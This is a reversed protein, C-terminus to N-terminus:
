IMNSKIWPMYAAVRTYVGPFGTRACEYGFSVVGLLYYYYYSSGSMQPLMLPGGSDGQCADVNSNGACILQESFKVFSFVTRYSHECVKRDIIPVQVDRLVNSTPSQHKMAGWGAVFPNMGVFEQTLFQPGEPLCITAIFDTMIVTESMEILALDNTISKLDFKEHIVTRKIRYNRAELEEPNSLDHAGLRVLMLNNNICHASTIVYKSSILSGGCLFKLSSPDYEDRYGLAAMWPYNGKKTEYGGVVRNITGRSVGCTPSPSPMVPPYQNPESILTNQTSDQNPMPQIVPGGSPSQPTPQFIIVGMDITTAKSITSAATPPMKNPPPTNNLDSSPYIVPPMNSNTATIPSATTRLPAFLFPTTQYLPQSPRRTTGFITPPIQIQVPPPKTMNIPYFPRTGCCILFNVGDFGCISNSVFTQFDIGYSTVRAEDYFEEIMDPCKALTICKGARLRSDVCDQATVSKIKHLTEVNKLTLDQKPDSMLLTMLSILQLYM